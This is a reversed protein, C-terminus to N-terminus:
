SAQVESITIYQSTYGKVRLLGYNQNTTAGYNSARIVINVSIYINKESHMVQLNKLQNLFSGKTNGQRGGHMSFEKNLPDSLM